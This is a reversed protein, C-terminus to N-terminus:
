SCGTTQGCDNCKECTGSRVMHMSGCAGCSNGTFGSRKAESAESVTPLRTEKDVLLGLSKVKEKDEPKIHALDYRDLYTIALERFVYDMLSTANKVYSSGQVFGSPEFKTFTFADVFEELPVGYQLGLSIAIAFCNLLSRLTAGERSVDIFVEGLRGDEYEGTHLYLSHDGIKAKQVFGHRRYPLRKRFGRALAEALVAAKTDNNAGSTLVEVEKEDLGELLQMNTALAQSMKSGDRYLAVAKIGLEWALLHIDNFDQQTSNAPLNVTKSIAGSIFPQVAAMMEVHARPSIFRTGNEGCKNACDFVALHANKLAPAGEITKENEIHKLIEVVQEDTYGLNKLAPPVSQNVIKFYGGGALKKFKVLAYDPEAGTTDCDMVLGITGTPALCTSQANRLGFEEVQSVVKDWIDRAQTVLKRPGRYLLKLGVPTTSLGDYGLEGNYAASRHNRMVKLVVERNEDYGPFVGLKQALDSSTLYSEGTMIATIAAAWNRGTESDYPFGLQMLMAGLNAYGLGLTRFKYSLEAISPGPFQAMTVSIELAITTLRCCHRFAEINFEGDELFKVLNSSALNCATDDLFMYESNHIFVGSFNDHGNVCSPKSSTFVAFNHTNDVTGDYVDENGCFEVSVVTHNFNVVAEQLLEDTPYWRVITDKTPFKKVGLQKAVDRLEEWNELSFSVGNDQFTRAVEAIMGEILRKSHREGFMQKGLPSRQCETGCCIQDELITIFNGRCIPCCREFREATVTRGIHRGESRMKTQTERISRSLQEHQQHDEWRSVASNSMNQKSVESHQKGFMPNLEGTISKSINARWEDNMLRRAPNNDGLMSERHLAAHDKASLLKFNQPNDNLADFDSHHIHYGEPAQGFFFDNILRYQQAWRTGGWVNRRRTAGKGNQIISSHFPMLSDGPQLDIVKRYSGDRLMMLEDDTVRLSSGDDFTVCFIPANTRKVGINWMLEISTKQTRHNRTFVPVETGVLDRIPVATRGDAVAVLTEGTVCCPNSANIRGSNLCTHWDNITTDFQIGPDACLFSARNIQDFLKKAKLTKAVEGTTRFTLNWDRDKKVAHMFEDTVRITNNANMGSVTQYAEGEWNLDYLPLDDTFDSESLRTLCQGLFAGPVGMKRAHSIVKALEKNEKPNAKLALDKSTFTNYAELMEGWITRLLQSGAAMAVVKREENVKWNIFAEVDPHDVNLVVMKAARRTTGGSKVGGAGVDGVKLWSMLGSSKGGGSLPEGYGRLASFNSGTGSGYKFLRAERHFLDFIGGPNVLDDKVGQIFCAHPQPRKYASDSVTLEKTGDDVYYHGQPDGEIGYAWYLGTNFWQPSNPAVYQMVVMYLMEDYYAQADKESSFYGYEEGWGTWCGVIRHVTQRVDNEYTIGDPHDLKSAWETSYKSNYLSNPHNHNVGQRRFYKQALIDLATQSWSEPVIVNDNEFVV